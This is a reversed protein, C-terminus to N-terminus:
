FICKELITLIKNYVKICINKLTETYKDLFKMFAKEVTAQRILDIIACVIFVSLTSFLFHFILYPSDYYKINNLIGGGM